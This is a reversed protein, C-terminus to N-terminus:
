QEWKIDFSGHHDDADMRVYFVTGTLVASIGEETVETQSYVEGHSEDYITMSLIGSETVASASLTHPGNGKYEVKRQIYGKFGGYEATWGDKGAENKINMFMSYSGSSQYSVAGTVAMESTDENRVQENVPTNQLIVPLGETAAAASTIFGAAAVIILAASILIAPIKLNRYKMIARIREELGNRSFSSGLFVSERKQDEMSILTRAYASKNNEGLSRLVAEDCSLELDRGALADMVWVLPNFWHICLAACLLLKTVTDFRRIHIYEHQLVYNMKETDMWDTNKPMLIVPRFVGYTLPSYIRDSQRIEIPRKLPHKSLWNSVFECTVPLAGMVRRRFRIYSIALCAALFLAVTGWLIVLLSFAPEAVPSRTTSELGQFVPSPSVPIKGKGSVQFWLSPKAAGALGSLSYIRYKSPVSFPLLLRVLAMDWLILFTHKPLYNLFIARLFLVALILVGTQVSMEVLRM